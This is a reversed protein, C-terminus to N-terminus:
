NREGFRRALTKDAKALAKRAKAITLRSGQISLQLSEVGDRVRTLAVRHASSNDRLQLLAIRDELSYPQIATPNPPAM